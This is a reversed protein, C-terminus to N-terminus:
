DFYKKHNWYLRDIWYLTPGTCLYDVDWISYLERHKVANLYLWSFDIRDHYCLFRIDALRCKWPQAFQFSKWHAHTLKRFNLRFCIHVMEKRIDFFLIYMYLKNIIERNEHHLALNLNMLNLYHQPHRLFNYENRRRTRLIFM